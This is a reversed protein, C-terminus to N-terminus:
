LADVLAQVGHAILECAGKTGLGCQVPELDESAQRMPAQAMLAKSVLRRLVEGVAVPRVDVEDTSSGAAPATKRLPVLHAACVYPSAAAPLEGDLCMRIFGDLAQLLSVQSSNDAECLCDKLHSPRLGSPGGSSGPPFKGIMTLWQQLREATGKQTMDWPIRPLSDISDCGLRSLDPPPVVPHLDQLKAAVRTDAPDWLGTSLLHKCAKSLAGEAM